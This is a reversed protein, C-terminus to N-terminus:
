AFNMMPSAAINSLLGAPPPTLLPIKTVRLHIRDIDIYFFQDSNIEIASTEDINQEAFTIARHFAAPAELQM